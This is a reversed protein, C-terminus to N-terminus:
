CPLYECLIKIQQESDMDLIGTSCNGEDYCDSENLYAEGEVERSETNIVMLAIYSLGNNQSLVYIFVGDQWLEIDDQTGASLIYKTRNHKEGYNLTIPFNYLSQSFNVAHIYNTDQYHLISKNIQEM